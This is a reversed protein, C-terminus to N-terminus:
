APRRQTYTTGRAAKAIINAMARHDSPTISTVLQHGTVRHRWIAHRKARVLAYNYTHMIRTIERSAKHQSM